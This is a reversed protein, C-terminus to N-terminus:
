QGEPPAATPPVSGVDPVAASPAPTPEVTPSPTPTAVATPTYTPSHEPAGQIVIEVLPREFVAIPYPASARRAALIAVGIGLGALLIMGGFALLIQAFPSTRPRRRVPTPEEDDGWETPGAV